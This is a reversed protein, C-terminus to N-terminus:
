RVEKYKGNISLNTKTGFFCISLLLFVIVVFQIFFCVEARLFFKDMVNCGLLSSYLKQGNLLTFPSIFSAFIRSSEVSYLFGSGYLQVVVYFLSIMYPYVVNKFIFSLFCVTLAFAFLGVFKMFTFLIFFSGISCSLPTYKFVQVAYIPLSSGELGYFIYFFGWNIFAMSAVVFGVFLILSVIKAFGMALKGRVCSLILHNMQTEKEQIFIPIVTFIIFCVLFFDSFRYDFLKEWTKTEYFENIERGIYKKTIFQNEEKKFRNEYREYFRVNKEAREILNEMETRYKVAYKLPQYFYVGLATYDGFVYGTYTDEQYETSYTQDIIIKELRNYEETVFKVHDLTIRGDLTEHMKNVFEVYDPNDSPNLFYNYKRDVSQYDHYLYILNVIILFIFTSVILKTIYNKRMEYAIIKIM